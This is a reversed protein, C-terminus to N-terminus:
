VIEDILGWQLATAANIRRASLALYATRHKGIRRLISVTGGAGPLLGWKIEPLQVFTNSDAVVRMAFAPLEIGAGICARHLRFELKSGLELLLSGVSRSSRIAHAISANPVVGFENLDGGICFCGGEGRIVARHLGTDIKLLLLAEYLADRMGASYANRRQPRNLVVQLEDEQREVLVVKESERRAIPKAVTNKRVNGLEFVGQLSAYALSEALLGQQATVEENHRLLQVLTMAALPNEDINKILPAVERLSGVVVDVGKLLEPYSLEGVAIVPCPLLRLAAALDQLRADGSFDGTGAGDLLLYNHELLPSYGELGWPTRFLAAVECLTLLPGMGSILESEVLEHQPIHM